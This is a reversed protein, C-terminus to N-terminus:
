KGMQQQYTCITIYLENGQKKKFQIPIARIHSIHINNEIFIHLLKTKFNNKPKLM